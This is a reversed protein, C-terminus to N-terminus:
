VSGSLVVHPMFALSAPATTRSESLARMRYENLDTVERRPVAKNVPPASLSPTFQRGDGSIMSIIDPPWMRSFNSVLNPSTGGLCRNMWTTIMTPTEPKRADAGPEDRGWTKGTAPNIRKYLQKRLTETRENDILRNWSLHFVLAGLSMGWRLKLDTLSALTVLPPIEDRIARVPALLESSFRNAQEEADVPVESGHLVIHGIEHGITWRTREWSDMMKVITLPRERHDGVRISYGYHKEPLEALSPNRNLVPVGARELRHTLNPIPHDGPLDLAERVQSAAEAAPTGSPLSPLTVPPLRHYSDL